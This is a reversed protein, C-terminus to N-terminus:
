ICIRKPIPHRMSLSRSFSDPNNLNIDILAVACRAPDKGCGVRYEGPPAHARFATNAKVSIDFRGDLRLGFPPVPGGGEVTVSGSVEHAVVAHLGLNQVDGGVTLTKPLFATVTPTDNRLGLLGDSLRAFGELEGASQGISYVGAPVNLFQFRGEMDLAAQFRRVGQLTLRGAGPAGSEWIVQGGISFTTPVLPFDVGSTEAGSSVEIVTANSALVTGPYYVPSDLSGAIVHYRGAPIGELRYRGDGDTQTLSLITSAKSAAVNDAVEVAM